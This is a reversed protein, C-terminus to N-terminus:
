SESYKQVTSKSWTLGVKQYGDKSGKKSSQLTLSPCHKADLCICSRTVLLLVNNGRWDTLKCDSQLGIIVVKCM